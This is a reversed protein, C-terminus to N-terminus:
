RECLETCGPIKQSHVIRRREYLTNLLESIEKRLRHIAGRGRLRGIGRKEEWAMAETTVFSDDREFVQRIGSVYISNAIGFYGDFTHNTEGRWSLLSNDVWLKSTEASAVVLSDCTLQVSRRLDYRGMSDRLIVFPKLINRCLIPIMIQYFNQFGNM